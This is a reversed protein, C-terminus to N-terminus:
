LLCILFIYTRILHREQRYNLNAPLLQGVMNISMQHARVVSEANEARIQQATARAEANKAQAEANRTRQNARNLEMKLRENESM